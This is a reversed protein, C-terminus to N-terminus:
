RQADAVWLGYHGLLGTSAGMFSGFILLMALQTKADDSQLAGQVARVSALDYTDGGIEVKRTDTSDTPDTCALIAAKIEKGGQEETLVKGALIGAELLYSGIEVYQRSRTEISNM